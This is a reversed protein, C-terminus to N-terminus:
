YKKAMTQCSLTPWKLRAKGPPTLMETSVLVTKKNADRTDLEVIGSADGRYYQYGDAAWHTKGRQAKVTVQTLMLLILLLPILKLRYIKINM